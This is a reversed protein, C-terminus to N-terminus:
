LSYPINTKVTEWEKLLHKFPMGAIVEDQRWQTYGLNNLWQTRDINLNPHEIQNLYLHSVEWAMSSSHLSWTPIGLCCSETLSNSNLGVVAWAGALDQELSDGGEISKHKIQKSHDSISIGPMELVKELLPLQKNHSQPHLRIHIPRSSYKRINIITSLIYNEYSGYVRYMPDLSTDGPRQMMFLIYDGRHKQWPRIEINQEAQIREWRDGSSNQNCYDGENRFYSYWSWRYYSGQKPPKVHNKRFMASEVVIWPKGSKQVIDFVWPYKKKARNLGPNNEMLYIDASEIMLRSEVTFKKMKGVPVIRFNPTCPLPFHYNYPGPSFTVVRLQRSLDLM